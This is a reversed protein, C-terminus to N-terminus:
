SRHVRVRKKIPRTGDRRPKQASQGFGGFVKKRMRNALAPTGIGYRRQVDLPASRIREEGALQAVRITLRKPSSAM